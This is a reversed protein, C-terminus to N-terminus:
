TETRSTADPLRPTMAEILAQLATMAQEHRRESDLAEQRILEAQQGIQVGPQSSARHM